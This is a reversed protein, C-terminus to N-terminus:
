VALRMNKGEGPNIQIKYQEGCRQSIRSGVAEDFELIEDFSKESSIITRSDPMYYRHNILEFALNIDADTPRAGQKCKLFNDIYLTDAEKFPKFIERYAEDDNISAKLRVSEERWLMYAVKGGSHLIKDCIATCIHTKGSGVAGFICFWKMADNEDPIDSVYKLARYKIIKQWENEIMYNDFTYIKLLDKLGSNNMNESFRRLPMCSCEKATFRGEASLYATRGKNKCIECDYGTLEGEYDNFNLVDSEERSLLRVGNTEYSHSKLKQLLVERNEERINLMAQTLITILAEM